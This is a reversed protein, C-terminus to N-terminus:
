LPPKAFCCLLLPLRKRHQLQGERGGVLIGKNHFPKCLPPQLGGGTVSLAQCYSIGKRAPASGEVAVRTPLYWLRTRIRGQHQAACHIPFVESKKSDQLVFSPEGLVFLAQQPVDAGSEPNLGAQQREVQNLPKTRRHVRM